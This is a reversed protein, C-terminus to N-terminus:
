LFYYSEARDTFVLILLASVVVVTQMEARHHFVQHSSHPLDVLVLAVAAVTVQQIAVVPMKLATQLVTVLILFALVV